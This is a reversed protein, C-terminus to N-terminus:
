QLSLSHLLFHGQFSLSSTVPAVILAYLSNKVKSLSFKAIRLTVVQQRFQQRGNVAM